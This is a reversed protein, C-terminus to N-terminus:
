EKTPKFSWLNPTMWGEAPGFAQLAFGRKALFDVYSFLIKTAALILKNWLHMWNISVWEYFDSNIM